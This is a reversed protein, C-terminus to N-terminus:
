SGGRLGESMDRPFMEGERPNGPLHSKRRIAPVKEPRSRDSPPFEVSVRSPKRSSEIGDFDFRRGGSHWATRTGETRIYETPGHSLTITILLLPEEGDNEGRKITAAAISVASM